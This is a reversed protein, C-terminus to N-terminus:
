SRIPLPLLSSRQVKSRLKLVWDAARLLMAHMSMAGYIGSACIRTRRSLQSGSTIRPNWVVRQLRLTAAASLVNYTSLTNNRFTAEEPQIGSAPIAGLHIAADAGHLVEFVQGMDTLDTKLYPSLRERPPLQDVNLVDYGHALLDKIVARGAKGSGGTVVIKKMHLSE